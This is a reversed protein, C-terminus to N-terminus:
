MIQDSLLRNPLAESVAVGQMSDNAALVDRIAAKVIFPSFDDEERTTMILDVSIIDHDKFEQDSYWVDM